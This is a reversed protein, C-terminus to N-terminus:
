EIQGSSPSKNLSNKHPFLTVLLQDIYVKGIATGEPIKLNKEIEEVITTTETVEESEESWPDPSNPPPSSDVIEETKSNNETSNPQQNIESKPSEEPKLITATELDENKIGNLADIESPKTPSDSTTSSNDSFNNEVYRSTDGIISGPTVVKMPSVSANFITTATGICANSGITSEGIVLVGSGLTAGNEVHIVGGYANLVVGMGICADAGIVIRSNPAAQIIVGPAISATPHIEVDGGILIKSNVVPQLPPLYM